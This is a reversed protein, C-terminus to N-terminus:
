GEKRVFYDVMLASMWAPQRIEEGRPAFERVHPKIDLVPTGDLADLEAVTITLGEVKVLRCTSLGLRNPRNKKRQAFIGVKPWAPNERPHEAATVVATPSVKHFLYIVEVHSFEGLGALAMADFQAADLEIQAQTGGWFDDVTASRAARVWGIARVRYEQEDIANM